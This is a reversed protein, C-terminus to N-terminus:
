IFCFSDGLKKELARKYVISAVAVDMAGTGVIHCLIKEESSFSSRKKGKAIEGITAYINSKDIKEKESLEKLAGRHLSQGIHDVVIKDINLIVDDECEQYSGLPFFITDSKLWSYKIFKDKSPTVCIIVDANAGNEPSDLAVTKCNVINKIKEKLNESASKKIDFIKLEDINFVESIAMIQYYAQMGAGYISIKLSKKNTLYKLAVATQAGTRLNTIEAGEMVAKFQGNTPDILLIMGSLYPLGIKANDLFGGVWKLGASDLWGVYAPMANMFGKYAPWDAIEGLDLTVKTPNIVTGDGLGQFTKDVIDIVDNMKIVKQVDSKNLLLTKM